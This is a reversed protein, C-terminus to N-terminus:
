PISTGDWTHNPDPFFTLGAQGNGYAFYVFWGGAIKARMALGLKGLNTELREWTLM